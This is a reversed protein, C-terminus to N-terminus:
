SNIYDSVDFDAAMLPDDESGFEERLAAEM